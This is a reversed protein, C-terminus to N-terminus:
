PRHGPRAEERAGDQDSRARVEGAGRVHEGPERQDRAAIRPREHAGVPDHRAHRRDAQAAAGLTLTRERRGARHVPARHQRLRGQPPRSRGTGPRHRAQLAAVNRARRRRLGGAAQRAARARRPRCRDSGREIQAAPETVIGDRQEVLAALLHEPELQPNNAHRALEVAAAVAERAKETYKNINM